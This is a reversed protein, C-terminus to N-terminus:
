VAPALTSDCIPNSFIPISFISLKKSVPFAMVGTFRSHTVVGDEYVVLYHTPMNFSKPLFLTNVSGDVSEFVRCEFVPCFGFEVRRPNQFSHESAILSRM